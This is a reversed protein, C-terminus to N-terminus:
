TVVTLFPVSSNRLSCFEWGRNRQSTGGVAEPPATLNVMPKPELSCLQIKLVRKKKQFYSIFM